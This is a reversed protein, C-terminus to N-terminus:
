PLVQTWIQRRGRYKKELVVAAAGVAGQYGNNRCGGDVKMNMIYPM